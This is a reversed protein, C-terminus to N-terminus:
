KKTYILLENQYTSSFFINNNNKIGSSIGKLENKFLMIDSIDYGKQVDIEEFGGFVTIDKYDENSLYSKDM